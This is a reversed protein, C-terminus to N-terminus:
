SVTQGNRRAQRVLNEIQADTQDYRVKYFNVFNPKRDILRQGAVPHCVMM